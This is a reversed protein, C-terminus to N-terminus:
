CKYSVKNRGAEKSTYVNEDTFKMPNEPCQSSLSAGISLTVKTDVSWELSEVGSRIQEALNAVEELNMGRVIILFEDGGFRYLKARKGKLISIVKHSVMKLVEDGFDHGFNDNFQKFFDIDYMILGFVKQRSCLSDYLKQFRRRTYAGTLTDISAKHQIMWIIFLLIGIIIIVFIIIRLITKYLLTSRYEQMILNIASESNYFINAGTSASMEETLVSFKITSEKTIDMIEEWSASHIEKEISYITPLISSMLSMPANMHAYHTAIAYGEKLRLLAEDWNDTKILLNIATKYYPAQFLTYWTNNIMFQNLTTPSIDNLSLYDKVSKLAEKCTDYDLEALAIQALTMDKRIALSYYEPPVYESKYELAKKYYQKALTTQNGSISSYSFALITYCYEYFYDEMAIGDAYDLATQICYMVTQYSSINLYIQSIDAYIWASIYKSNSRQAYIQANRFVNLAETTSSLIISYLKTFARYYKAQNYDSMTKIDTFSALNKIDDDISTLSYELHNLISDLKQQKKKNQIFSFLYISIILLLFLIFIFYNLWKKQKSKKM